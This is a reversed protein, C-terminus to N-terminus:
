ADLIERSAHFQVERVKGDRLFALGAAKLPVGAGGPMTGTQVALIAVREDCVKQWAADDSYLRKQDVGDFPTILSRVIEENTM